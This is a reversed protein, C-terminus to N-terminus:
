RWKEVRCSRRHDGQQAWPRSRRLDLKAVVDKEIPTDWAKCEVVVRYTMIGDSKEALVDCEHRGGSRGELIVNLQAQYSNFLFYKAVQSELVRGKETSDGM